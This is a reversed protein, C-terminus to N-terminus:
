QVNGDGGMLGHQSMISRYSPMESFDLKKRTKQLTYGRSAMMWLFWDITYIQGDVWNPVRDASPNDQYLYHMAKFFDKQDHFDRLFEPLHHGSELWKHIDQMDDNRGM